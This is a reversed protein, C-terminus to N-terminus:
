TTARQGRRRYVTAVSCGLDQAVLRAPVTRTADIMDTTDRYGRRRAARDLPAGRRINAAAATACRLDRDSAIRFRARYAVSDLGHRTTLHRPLARLWSGCVRCLVHDETVPQQGVRLQRLARSTAPPPSPPHHCYQFGAAHYRRLWKAGSVSVGLVDALRAGSWPRTRRVLDDVGGFGAAKALSEYKDRTRARYALAARQRTAQNVLQSGTRQRSERQAACGRAVEEATGRLRTAIAKPFRDARASARQAAGERLDTSWLGRMRPLEHLRRYEDAKLDHRLAVHQGLGRHWEGCELCALKGGV